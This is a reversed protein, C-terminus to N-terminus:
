QSQLLRGPLIPYNGNGPNNFVANSWGNWYDTSLNYGYEVDLYSESGSDAQKPQSSRQTLDGLLQLSHM